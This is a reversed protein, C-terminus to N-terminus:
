GRRSVMALDFPGTLRLSTDRLDFGGTGRWRSQAVAVKRTRRLGELVARFCCLGAELGQWGIRIGDVSPARSRAVSYIRGSHTPRGEKKLRVKDQGM